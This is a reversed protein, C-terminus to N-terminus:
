SSPCRRMTSCNSASSSAFSDDSLAALASPIRESRSSRNAEQADRKRSPRSWRVRFRRHASSAAMKSWIGQAMDRISPEPFITSALVAIRPKMPSPPQEAWIAADKIRRLPGPCLRQEALGCIGAERCEMNAVIALFRCQANGGHGDCSGVTRDLARDSRCVLKRSQLTLVDM